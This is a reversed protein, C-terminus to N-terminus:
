TDEATKGFILYLMREAWRRKLYVFGITQGFSMGIVLSVMNKGIYRMNPISEKFVKIIEAM